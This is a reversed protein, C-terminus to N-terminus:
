RGGHGPQTAPHTHQAPYYPAIVEIAMRLEEVARPNVTQKTKMAAIMVAHHETLRKVYDEQAPKIRQTM